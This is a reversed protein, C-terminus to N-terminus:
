SAPGRTPPRFSGIPSLHMGALRWGEETRVAIHTARFQGDSPQGQYTAQQTHRGIAVATDGYRRVSVEDWELSSTEFDGSRSRDLWQERDIVFGLPGVLEFDPVTLAALAEADGRLEADVWRTGLERIEDATDTM